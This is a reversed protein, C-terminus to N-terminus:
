IGRNQRYEAVSFSVPNPKLKECHGSYYLGKTRFLKAKSNGCWDKLDKQAVGSFIQKKRLSQYQPLEPQSNCYFQNKTPKSEKLSSMAIESNDNKYSNRTEEASYDIFPCIPLPKSAVSAGDGTLKDFDM